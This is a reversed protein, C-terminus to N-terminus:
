RPAGARDSLSGRRLRYQRPTCRYHRVFMRHLHSHDAFGTHEAITETTLDTTLLYRAAASVRSRLAFESFSTGMTKRFVRNFQAASLGCAAAAERLTPRVAASDRLADLAPMIRKMNRPLAGSRDAFGDPPAWDRGVTLLFRLLCVRLAAMWAHPREEIERRMEEGVALVMRRMTADTVRPRHVVPVSFLTLWPMDGLVEEGLFEMAFVLSVSVGTETVFRWAHPELPKCFWVDGPGFTGVFDQWHREQTGHLIVGIELGENLDPMLPGPRESVVIHTDLPRPVPHAITTRGELAEGLTRSRAQQNRRDPM